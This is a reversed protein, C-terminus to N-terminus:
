DDGLEDIEYEKYLGRQLKKIRKIENLLEEDKEKLSKITEGKPQLRRKAVERKHEM